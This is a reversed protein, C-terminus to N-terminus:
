FEVSTSDNLLEINLSFRREFVRMQDITVQSYGTRLYVKRLSKLTYVCWADAVAEGNVSLNYIM